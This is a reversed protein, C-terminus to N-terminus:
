CEPANQWSLTVSPPETSGWCSKIQINGSSYLISCVAKADAIVYLTHSLSLRFPAQLHTFVFMYSFRRLLM